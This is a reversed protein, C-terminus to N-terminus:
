PGQGRFRRRVVTSLVRNPDPPWTSPAELPGWEPGPELWVGRVRRRHTAGLAPTSRRPHVLAASDLQLRRVCGTPPSGERGQSLSIGCWGSSRKLPHRKKEKAQVFFADGWRHRKKWPHKSYILISKVLGNVIQGPLAESFASPTGL